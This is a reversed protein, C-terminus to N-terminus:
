MVNPQAVFVVSPDSADVYATQATAIFEMQIDLTNQGEDEEDNEFVNPAM